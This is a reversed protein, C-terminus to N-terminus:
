GKKKKDFRGKWKKELALPDRELAKQEAVKEPSPGFDPMEESGYDQLNQWNVPPEGLSEMVADWIQMWLAYQGIEEPEEGLDRMRVRADPDFDVVAGRKRFRDHKMAEYEDRKWAPCPKGNAARKLQWWSVYKVPITNEPQDGGLVWKYYKRNERTCRKQLEEDKEKRRKGDKRTVRKPGAEICAAVGEEDIAQNAVRYKKGNFSTTMMKGKDDWVPCKINGRMMKMKKRAVRAYTLGFIVTDGLARPDGLMDWHRLHLWSNMGGQGYGLFIYPETKAYQNGADVYTKRLKSGSKWAARVDLQHVSGRSDLPRENGQNTAEISARTMLFKAFEPDEDKKARLGLAKATQRHIEQTHRRTRKTIRPRRNMLFPAADEDFGVFQSAKSWDFMERIVEDTQPGDPVVTAETVEDEPPSTSENNESNSPAQAGVMLSMESPKDEPTDVIKNDTSNCSFCNAIAAAVLMKSLRM